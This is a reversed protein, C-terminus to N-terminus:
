EQWRLGQDPPWPGICSLTMALVTATARTCRASSLPALCSHGLYCLATPSSRVCRHSKCFAIVRIGFNYPLPPAKVYIIFVTRGFTDILLCGFSITLLVVLISIGMTGFNTFGWSSFIRLRLFGDLMDM